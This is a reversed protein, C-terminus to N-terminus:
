TIIKPLVIDRIIEFIANIALHSQTPANKERRSVFM